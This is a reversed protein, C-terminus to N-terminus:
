VGVHGYAANRSVGASHVLTGAPLVGESATAYGDDGSHTVGTVYGGWSM